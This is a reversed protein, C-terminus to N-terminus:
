ICFCELNYLQRDNSFTVGHLRSNHLMESAGTVKMNLTSSHRDTFFPIHYLSDPYHSATFPDIALFTLLVVISIFLILFKLMKKIVISPVFSSSTIVKKLAFSATQGGRVERVVM